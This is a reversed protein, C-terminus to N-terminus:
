DCTLTKIKGSSARMFDYTEGPAVEIAHDGGWAIDNVKGYLYYQAVPTRSLYGRRNPAITFWGETQTGGAITQYQLYLEVPKSCKNIVQIYYLPEIDLTDECDLTVKHDFFAGNTGGTPIEVRRFGYPVPDDRVTHLEDEGNWVRGFAEATFYFTTDTTPLVIREAGPEVAYWGSTVWNGNLDVHRVAVRLRTSCDNKFLIRHADLAAVPLTTVVLAALALVIRALM